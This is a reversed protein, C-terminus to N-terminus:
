DNRSYGVQRSKACFFFSIFDVVVIVLPPPPVNRTFCLTSVNDFVVSANDNPDTVIRYLYERSTANQRVHFSSDIQECSLVHVYQKLEPDIWNNILRCMEAGHIPTERRSEFDFHATCHRELQFSLSVRGLVSFFCIKAVQKVSLM